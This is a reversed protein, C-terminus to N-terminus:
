DGGHEPTVGEVGCQFWAGCTLRPDRWRDIQRLGEFGAAEMARRLTDLDYSWQHESQQVEPPSYLFLACVDNLDAVRFSRDTGGLGIVDPAGGVYRRMVERTDPVVLGLTGGPRLARMCEALFAQGEQPRLHEFYHGAYVEDLSHDPFPLPPVRLHLDAPADAAEDINCWGGGAREGTIPFQGCGVNVRRPQGAKWQYDLTPRLMKDAYDTRM